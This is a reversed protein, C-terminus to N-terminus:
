ITQWVVDLVQQVHTCCTSTDDVVKKELIVGQKSYLLDRGPDAGTSIKKWFCLDGQRPRSNM